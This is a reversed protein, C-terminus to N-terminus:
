QSSAQNPWRSSMPIVRDSVDVRRSCTEAFSRRFPLLCEHSRNLIQLAEHSRNDRCPLELSAAESDLLNNKFGRM